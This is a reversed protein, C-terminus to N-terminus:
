VVVRPDDADFAVPRTDAWGERTQHVRHLVHVSGHKETVKKVNKNRPYKKM